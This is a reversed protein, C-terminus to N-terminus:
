NLLLSVHNLIIENQGHLMKLLKVFAQRGNPIIMNSIKEPCNEAIIRMLEVAM